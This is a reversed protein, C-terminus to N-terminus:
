AARREVQSGEAIAARKREIAEMIKDYDKAFREIGESELRQTVASLEIGLYKLRELVWYAESIGDLIRVAPQGHDRYAEITEMTMTNITEPAIIEDVYKVDSYAPNKTGTSAWLLHQPQAGLDALARFRTGVFLEKYVQYAVRASAISAQGHLRAALEGQKGGAQIFSELMPDIMTDIRSLFFSAVSRVDGLSRERAALMELGDMYAQAVEFYRSLGFLLTINVNIGEGILRRIAGLGAQTGPVKVFINPRGVANWLRQAEAITAETDRALRPSVEISVFGDRGAERDFTPRLQDAARQIDEIALAEFIDASTKGDRALTDISADYDDSQAIAKEFISPNSTVGSIGGDTILRNLEGSDLLERSILDLWVSQGLAKLQTLPNNNM